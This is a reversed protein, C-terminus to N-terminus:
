WLFNKTGQILAFGLGSKKRLVERNTKLLPRSNATVRLMAIINSYSFFQTVVAIDRCYLAFGLGSRGVFLAPGLSSFHGLIQELQFCLFNKYYYHPPPPQPAHHHFGFGYHRFIGSVPWGEKEVM